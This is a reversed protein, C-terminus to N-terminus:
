TVFFTKKDIWKSKNVDRFNHASPPRSPTRQVYNKIENKEMDGKFIFRSRGLIKQKGM